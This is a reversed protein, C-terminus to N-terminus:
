DAPPQRVCARLTYPPLVREDIRRSATRLLLNQAPSPEPLTDM